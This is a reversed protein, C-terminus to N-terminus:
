EEKASRLEVWFTYQRKRADIKRRVSYKSQINKNREYRAWAKLIGGLDDQPVVVAVDDALMSGFMADYKTVGKSKIPTKPKAVFKFEPEEVKPKVWTTQPKSPVVYGRNTEIM